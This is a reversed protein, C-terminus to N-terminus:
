ILRLLNIVIGVVGMSMLIIGCIMMIDGINIKRPKEKREQLARNLVVQYDYKIKLEIYSQKLRELQSKASEM